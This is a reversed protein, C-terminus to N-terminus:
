YACFPEGRALAVPLPNSPCSPQVRVKIKPLKEVCTDVAQQRATYGKDEKSLTNTPLMGKEVYQHIDTAAGGSNALVVVPQKKELVTLVTTLTGVGGAVVLLILATSVSTGQEKCFADELSARLAIEKGFQGEAEPGADVFVFHTHRPELLARPGKPKPRDAREAEAAERWAIADPDYRRVRGNERGRDLREHGKVIGWTAVGLCVCSENANREAM